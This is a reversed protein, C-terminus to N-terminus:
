PRMMTLNRSTVLLGWLLLAGYLRPYAVLAAPYAGFRATDLFYAPVAFLLAAVILLRWEVLRSTAALLFVVFLMAYHYQEGAPQLPVVLCLMALAARSPDERAIRLTAAILAIGVLLPVFPVRLLSVLTQYAPVASEPRSAYGLVRRVDLIWLEVGFLPLTLLVVAATAGAAWALVRWRRLFIMLIWLPAGALKVLLLGALALGAVRDRREVHGYLWIAYLLALLIHIQGTRIEAALPQFLPAWVIALPVFHEGLPLRQRRRGVRWGLAVIGALAAVDLVAWAVRAVAPPLWAVPAMVLAMTPPGFGCFEDEVGAFGVARQQERFWPACLRADADGRLALRASTYYVSFAYTRMQPRARYLFVGAAILALAWPIWRRM